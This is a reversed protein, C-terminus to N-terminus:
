SRALKRLRAQEYERRDKQIELIVSSYEVGVKHGIKKLVHEQDSRSLSGAVLAQLASGFFYTVHAESFAVVPTLLEHDVRTMLRGPPPQGFERPQQIVDVTSFPLEFEDEAAGEHVIYRDDRKRRSM